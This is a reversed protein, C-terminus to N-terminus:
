KKKKFLDKIRKSAEEKVEEQLDKNNDVNASDKQNKFLEKSIIDKAKNELVKGGSELMSKTDINFTPDNFSGGILFGVTDLGEIKAVSNPLKIKGKYDLSKDLGSTGSMSLLYDGMKFDFPKMQLRGDKIVFNVDLDKVPKNVLDEKKLVKALGQVAEVKELSLDKTKINGAAQLTSYVPEMEKNFDSKLQMGGSYNGQLSNFIPAFSKVMDLAKYTETFLLNNMMFNANVTPINENETSYYGNMVINGGMTNMSLNSMDAKGNKLQIRGNVDKLEVKGYHVEKLKTSMSFDINKPLILATTTTDTAVEDEETSIGSTFDDLNLYDSKINLSGKITSNHMVYGIYNYLQSDFSIDNKGYQVKTESLKLYEPSFTLTSQDVKLNKFSTTNLLMDSLKVTGSAKIKEYQEKEIFSSQGSVKLDANILGNLEMDELPYFDKVKGLDIIGFMALSFRPDTVPHTIKATLQFPNEAASFSLPNIKIVTADAIGGPNSIQALVNIKEVATPLSPYRFMGSQIELKIDFKPLQNGKYEGKAFASLTATGDTKLSKFENSYIAPILSLIDKFGIKESNLKLDIDMADNEKLAVYGDISAKIANIQIENQKLTYRNNELDADINIKAKLALNNLLSVNNTTYNIKPIDTTLEVVTHKSSLDGKLKLNFEDFKISEKTEQNDFLLALNRIALQNLKLAFNGDSEPTKETTPEETTEKLIDWNVKGNKAIVAKINADDLIIKDVEFSDGFLSLMNVTATLEKARVITDTEFQGTGKVWFDNLTLSAKPFNKFLSIDLSSFDFEGNLMNNVERKAITEIKSSFFLPISIMIVLIVAVIIGIVKLAKKM